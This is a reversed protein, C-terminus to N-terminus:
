DLWPYKKVLDHEAWWKGLGYYHGAHLWALLVLLIGYIIHEDLFPNTTQAVALYMLILLLTGSYSAVKVGVGSILALGICLLGAMFLIAVLSNIVPTAGLWQFFGALPGASHTLFGATPSGGSLWASSCLLGAGKCTSYGLGFLKDLFAWLFIWGVGVRLLALLIRRHQKTEINM